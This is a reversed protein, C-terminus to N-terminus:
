GTKMVDPVSPFAVILVRWRLGIPGLHPFGSSGPGPQASTPRRAPTRAGTGPVAGRSRDGPRQPGAPSAAVALLVVLLAGARRRLRGRDTRIRTTGRHPSASPSSSSSGPGTNPRGSPLAPWTQPAPEGDGGTAPAVPDPLLPSRGARQRLTLEQWASVWEARVAEIEEPSCGHAKLCATVFAEIFARRPLAPLRKGALIDSVTTPPLADVVAGSASTTSGGLARLRRLPVQGCWSRLEKLLAIFQEADAADYPNVSGATGDGGM